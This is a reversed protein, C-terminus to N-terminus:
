GEIRSDSLEKFVLATEKALCSIFSFPWLRTHSVYVKELHGKTQCRRPLHRICLKVGICLSEYCRLVKFNPRFPGHCLVHCPLNAKFNMEPCGWFPISMFATTTGAQQYRPELGQPCPALKTLIQSSINSTWISHQSRDM